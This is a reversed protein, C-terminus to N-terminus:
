PSNRKDVWDIVSGKIKKKEKELSRQKFFILKWKRSLKPFQVGSFGDEVGGEGETKALKM